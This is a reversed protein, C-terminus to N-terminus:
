QDGDVLNEWKFLDLTPQYWRITRKMQQATQATPQQASKKPPM